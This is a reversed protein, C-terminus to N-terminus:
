EYEKEQMEFTKLVEKIASMSKIIDAKTLENGTRIDTYADNNLVIYSFLGGYYKKGNVSAYPNITGDARSRESAIIPNRFMVAFGYPATDVLIFSPNDNLDYLIEVTVNEVDIELQSAIQELEDESVEPNLNKIYLDYMSEAPETPESGSSNINNDCSSAFYLLCLLFILM